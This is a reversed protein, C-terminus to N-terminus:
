FYLKESAGCYMNEDSSWNSPRDSDIGYFILYGALIMFIFVLVLETKTNFINKSVPKKM